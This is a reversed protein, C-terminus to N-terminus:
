IINIHYRFFMSSFSAQWGLAGLYFGPGAEPATPSYWIRPLSLQHKEQSSTSAADQCGHIGCPHWMPLQPNSISALPTAPKNSSNWDCHPVPLVHSLPRRKLYHHCIWSVLATIEVQCYRPARIHQRQDWRPPFTSCYPYHPSLGSFSLQSLSLSLQHYNSIGDM